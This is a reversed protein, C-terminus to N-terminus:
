ECRGNAFFDVPSFTRLEAGDLRTYNTLRSSIFSVSIVDVCVSNGKEYIWLAGRGQWPLMEDCGSILLVFVAIAYRMM